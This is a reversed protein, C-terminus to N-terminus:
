FHPIAEHDKLVCETWLCERGEEQSVSHCVPPSPSNPWFEGTSNDEKSYSLFEAKTEIVWELVAMCWPILVEMASSLVPFSWNWYRGPVCCGPAYHSIRLGGGGHGCPELIPGNGSFAIEWGERSRLQFHKRFNLKCRQRTDGSIKNREKIVKFLYPWMRPISHFGKLCVSALPLLLM